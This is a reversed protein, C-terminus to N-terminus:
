SATPPDDRRCRCTEFTWCPKPEEAPVPQYVRNLTRDNMLKFEVTRPRSWNDSECEVAVLWQQPDWWRITIPEGCGQFPTVVYDLDSGQTIVSVSEVGPLTRLREIREEVSGKDELPLATVKPPRPEFVKINM